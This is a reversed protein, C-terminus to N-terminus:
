DVQNFLLKVYNRHHGVQEALTGSKNYLKAMIVGGEFLALLNDYIQRATVPIRPSHRDLAAQLKDSLVREWERFGDIVAQQTDANFMGLQYIYSAVLCGPPPEQMGAMMEQMLGVFILYQQLPDDALKEARGMLDHLMADDMEVYRDLLARALANKSKFHYFFAGKTLGALQIVKDVSMGGYGQELVLQQAADLINQRTQTGDKPM